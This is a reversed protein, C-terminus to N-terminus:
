IARAVPGTPAPAAPQTAEASASAPESTSARGNAPIRRERVASFAAEHLYAADDIFGSDWADAQERLAIAMARLHVTEGEALNAPTDAIGQERLLRAIKGPSTPLLGVEVLGALTPHIENVESPSLGNSQLRQRDAGEAKM